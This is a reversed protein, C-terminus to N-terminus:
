RQSKAGQRPCPEPAIAHICPASAALLMAQRPEMDIKYLKWGAYIIYSLFPQLDNFMLLRGDDTVVDPPLNDLGKVGSYSAAPRVRKDLLFYRPM